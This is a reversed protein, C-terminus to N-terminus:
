GFAGLINGPLNERQMAPCVRDAFPEVATLERDPANACAPTILDRSGGVMRQQDAYGAFVLANLQDPLRYRLKLDAVIDHQVSAFGEPRLLLNVQTGEM